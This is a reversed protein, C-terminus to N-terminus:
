DHGNGEEYKIKTEDYKFATLIREINVSQCKPCAWGGETLVLVETPFEHSCELCRTDIRPVM